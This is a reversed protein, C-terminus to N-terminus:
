YGTAHECAQNFQQNRGEKDMVCLLSETETFVAEMAEELAFEPQQAHEEM